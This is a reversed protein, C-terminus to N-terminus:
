AAGPPPEDPPNGTSLPVMRGEGYPHFGRTLEFKTGPLFPAEPSVPRVRLIHMDVTGPDKELYVGLSWGGDGLKVDFFFWGPKKVEPPGKGGEAESWFRIAAFLKIDGPCTPLTAAEERFDQMRNMRRGNVRVKKGCATCRHALVDRTFREKLFVFAHGNIVIPESM